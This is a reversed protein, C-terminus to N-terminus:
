RHSIVRPLPSLDVVLKRYVLPKSEDVEGTGDADATGDAKSLIVGM